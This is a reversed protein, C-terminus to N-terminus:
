VLNRHAWDFTRPTLTLYDITFFPLITRYKDNKGGPGDEQIVFQQSQDVVRDGLHTWLNQVVRFM